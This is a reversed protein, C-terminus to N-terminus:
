LERLVVRAPAGDVGNISLPLCIIEFDGAPVGDLDIGELIVIGKKLLVNHVPFTDTDFRDVSLYDLGVLKIGIESLYEAADPELAAFHRQFERQKLLKSNGTGILLRHVGSLDIGQLHAKSVAEVNGLQCVRAMGMLTFLDMSEAGPAGRIIHAPADLHSGAHVSMTITTLLVVGSVGSRSSLEIDDEGPWALMGPEIKRSIDYIKKRQVIMAKEIAALENLRREHRGGDFPTTLWTRVIEEALRHGILWGGLVLMNSDNHARSLRATFIDWCLAARIGPVKNAVVADGQGTGCFIIGRNCGGSAVKEAAKFSFEPYDVPQSDFTGVDDVLYGLKELFPKLHEKLGFGAHDSSVVIRESM